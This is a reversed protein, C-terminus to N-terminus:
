AGINTLFDYVMIFITFSILIIAKKLPCGIKDKCLPDEMFSTLWFKWYNSRRDEKNTDQFNGFIALVGERGRQRPHRLKHITGIKVRFNEQVYM